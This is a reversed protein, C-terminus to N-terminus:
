FQSQISLSPKVIGAPTAITLTTHHQHPRSLLPARSLPARSRYCRVSWAAPRIRRVGDVNSSERCVQAASPRMGSTQLAASRPVTVVNRCTWVGPGEEISCFGAGADARRTMGMASMVQRGREHHQQATHVHYTEVAVQMAYETCLTPPCHPHPPPSSPPSASHEGGEEKWVAFYMFPRPAPIARCAAAAAHGVYSIEQRPWALMECPCIAWWTISDPQWLIARRRTHAAREERPGLRRRRRRQREGRAPLSIWISTLGALAQRPSACWQANRVGTKAEKEEQRSRRGSRSFFWRRRGAGRPCQEHHHHHHYTRFLIPMSARSVSRAFVVCGM